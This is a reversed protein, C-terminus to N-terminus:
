SYEIKFLEDSILKDDIKEYIKLRQEFKKHLNLKEEYNKLIIITKKLSDNVAIKSVENNKAIENLSLDDFYHLTFYKKQKDTLLNQYFDFLGIIKNIEKIENM